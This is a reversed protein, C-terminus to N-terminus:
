PSLETELGDQTHGLRRKIQEDMNPNLITVSGDARLFQVGSSHPSGFGFNAHPGKAPSQRRVFRKDDLGDVLPLGLNRAVNYNRGGTKSTFTYVGDQDDQSASYKGLEGKRIHKEGVVLTNAMGDILRAFTDRPKWNKYAAASPDSCDVDALRIAGKQRNVQQPDCPDQHLQWGTKPSVDPNPIKFPFRDSPDQDIFVVAYDGLPGAYLNAAGNMPIQQIGSRRGPCSMYKISGAANRETDSLATWAAVPDVTSGDIANEISTNAQQNGGNYLNYVNQAECFPMIMVFFSARSDGLALPPIGNFTDHLNHIGLGIQKLNNTCQIRRGPTRGDHITPLLLAVLVGLVIVVAVADILRFRYGRSGPPPEGGGAFNEPRNHMPKDIFRNM